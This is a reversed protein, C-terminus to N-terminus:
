RSRRKKAHGNHCNKAKRKKPVSRVKACTRCFQKRGRNGNRHYQGLPQWKPRVTCFLTETGEDYGSQDPVYNCCIRQAAGDRIRNRAKRQDAFTDVSGLFAAVNLCDPHFDRRTADARHRRGHHAELAGLVKNASLIEADRNVEITYRVFLRDVSRMEWGTPSLRM